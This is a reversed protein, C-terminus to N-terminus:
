ELYAKANGVMHEFIQKAQPNTFNARLVKDELNSLYSPSWEIKKSGYGLASQFSNSKDVLPADYPFMDTKKVAILNYENAPVGILQVLEWDDPIPAPIHSLTTGEKHPVIVAPL